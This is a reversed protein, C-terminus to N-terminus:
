AGQLLRAIEERLIRAAAAAAAKEVRENFRPELADLRNELADTRAATSNGTLALAQLREELAPSVDEGGPTEPEAQLADRVAAAVADRFKQHLPHAADLLAGLSEEVLTQATASQVGEQTAAFVAELDTLRQATEELLAACQEVKKNLADVTEAVDVTRSSADLAQEFAELAQSSAGAAQARVSELDKRLDDQVPPAAHTASPEAHVPDEDESGSLPASPTASAAPPAAAPAVDEEPLTEQMGVPPVAQAEDAINAAEDAAFFEALNESTDEAVVPVPAEEAPEAAPPEPLVAENEDHEASGTEREAATEDAPSEAEPPPPLVPEDTSAPADEEASPAENMLAIEPEPFDQTEPREAPHSEAEDEVSIEPEPFSPPTAEATDPAAESAAFFAAEDLGLDATPSESAQLPVEAPSDEAPADSPPAEFMSSLLSDIDQDDPAEPAPTEDTPAPTEKKASSQPAAGDDNQGLLSDLDAAMDSSLSQATQGDPPPVHGAVSSLLADLDDESIDASEQPASSSAPAKAAPKPDPPLPPTAMGARLLDELDSEQASSQPANGASLLDAVDPEPQAAKQALPPSSLANLLDDVDHDTGAIEQPAERNDPQPPINLSELLNDIDDMGPMQLEENPDVPRNTPASPAAFDLPEKSVEADSLGVSDLLEDIEGKLHPSNANLASADAQPAANQAPSSQAANGSAPVVGKEILETLDIIEEATNQDAM